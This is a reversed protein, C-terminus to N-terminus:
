RWDDLVYVGPRSYGAENPRHMTVGSIETRFGRAVMQRYAEERALNVGALVNPMGAAVALEGCADLLRAFRQEAGPGPRVAAFKVFCCGAGAESAPGWHCIAAGALRRAADWLFITDGLGLAAVTRIEAGLDLGEYIEETLERCSTEAADRETAALESYRSWPGANGLSQAPAAMIATLFRAYFGFKQYLALHMASQPFTFLGAHSAGWADLQSSVAEVLDKGVGQAQRDPRVTLPGFFGVSGWNTAFNSGVLEGDVEAAFSAVHEAAFRGYVYDLDAWFNEPDPAGLFTGFATRLIRRAAPLDGETLPRIIASLEEESLERNASLAPCLSNPCGRGACRKPWCPWVSPAPSPATSSRLL